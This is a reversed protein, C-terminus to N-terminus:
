LSHAQVFDFRLQGRLINVVVKNLRIIFVGIVVKEQAAGALPEAKPVASGAIAHAVGKVHLPEAYAALYIKGATISAELQPARYGRNGFRDLVHHLDTLCYINVSADAALAQGLGLQGAVHRYDGSKLLELADRDKHFVYAGQELVEVSNVILYLQNLSSVSTSM